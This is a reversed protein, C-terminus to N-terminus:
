KKLFDTMAKIAAERSKERALESFQARKNQPIQRVLALYRGQLQRSAMVEANTKSSKRSRARNRKAPAAAGQAPAAAAKRGRRRRRVPAGQSAAAGGATAVSSSTGSAARLSQLREELDAIEKQMEGLYNNIESASVRRDKILREIVYSAQGPNLQRAPQRAPRAV